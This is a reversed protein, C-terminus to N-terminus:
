NRAEKKSLSRKKGLHYRLGAMAQMRLAPYYLYIQYNQNLANRVQGFIHWQDNLEFELMTQLDIIPELSISRDQAPLPAQREGTLLFRQTWSLKRSIQWTWGAQAEWDPVYWAQATSQEFSFQRFTLLAHAKLNRSQYNARFKVQFKRADQYVLDFRSSDSANSRFFALNQYSGYSSELQVEFRESPVFTTILAGRYVENAHRLSAALPNLFPNQDFFQQYNQPQMEGTGLLELTLLQPFLRYTLRIDPYFFFAQEYSLSDTNLYTVTAGARYSFRGLTQEMYPNLTTLLRTQAHLSDNFQDARLRLRVQWGIEDDYQPDGYWGEAQAYGERVKQNDIWYRGRLSAGWFHDQVFNQPAHDYQAAVTGSHAHRRIDRAEPAPLSDPALPYGYFHTQRYGYGGGLYLRTNKDLKQTHNLRIGGRHEASNAGDLEGELNANYNAHISLQNDPTHFQARMHPSLYNGFGLEVNNPYWWYSDVGGIYDQETGKPLIEEPFPYREFDPLRMGPIPLTSKSGGRLSDPLFPIPQATGFKVGLEKEFEFDVKLSDTKQAQVSLALLLAPVLLYLKSM